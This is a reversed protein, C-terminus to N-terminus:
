ILSLNGAVTRVICGLRRAEFNFPIEGVKQGIEMSREEGTVHNLIAADIANKTGSQNSANTFALQFGDLSQQGIPDLTHYLEVNDKTLTGTQILFSIVMFITLFLCTMRVARQFSNLARRGNVKRIVTSIFSYTSTSFVVALGSGSIVSTGSFLVNQLDFTTTKVDRMDCTGSGQVATRRGWDSSLNSSELVICDAPVVDGPSLSWIEMFWMGEMWRLRRPTVMRFKDGLASVKNSRLEQWFTVIAPLPVVIMIIAFLSWDRDPISVSIVALVVLSVNYCNFVNDFAIQKWTVAEIDLQKNEGYLELREAATSCIDISSSYYRIAAECSAEKWNRLRALSGSLWGKSSRLM